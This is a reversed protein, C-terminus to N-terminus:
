ATQGSDLKKGNGRGRKEQHEKILVSLDHLTNYGTAAQGLEFLRMSKNLEVEIQDIFLSDASRKAM